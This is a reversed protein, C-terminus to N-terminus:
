NTHCLPKDMPLWVTFESGAGIGASRALVAGGHAEVIARVAALGIGLDDASAAITPTFQAFIDFIHPLLIASIGRGDDSVSLVLDHGEPQATVRVHGGPPTYKVANHLLNNVAQTLRIPDCDIRLTWDAIVVTLSQNRAATALAAADLPDALFDMLGVEHKVLRLVGHDVQTDMLDEALLSVADIQREVTEIVRIVDPQDPSARRISYAALRLPSLPGLLEHAIMTLIEDMVDPAKRGRFVPPPRGSPFITAPAAPGEICAM